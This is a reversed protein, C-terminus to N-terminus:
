QKPKEVDKVGLTGMAHKCSSCDSLLSIRKM